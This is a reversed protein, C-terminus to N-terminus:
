GTKGIWASGTVYEGDYFVALQGPAIAPEPDTFEVRVGGDTSTVIAPVAVHHARVQVHYLKAEGAAPPAVFWTARAFQLWRTKLEDRESVVVTATQPDISKVYLPETHAIGIGKRQGITFHEFGSHRGLVEGAENQINGPTGEVGRQNLLDRYNNTPVFCIEQSERKNFVPLGAARAMERVEPKTFEGVPFWSRALAQPEMAALVYSQDKARDTARRLRRVGDAGTEMRAYHGTAVAEAGLGRAFQLLSGFKLDRNCVVCPNPTRGERYAQVFHDMISGFEAAYDVVYFPIGLKNAVAHGDLSDDLSCCGQKHSPRETSCGSGKAEQSIGNRLFLGIVDHGEQQLRWAAVSSDVGGSMAVVVRTM